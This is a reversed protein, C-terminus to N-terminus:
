RPQPCPQRSQGNTSCCCVPYQGDAELITYTPVENTDVMTNRRSSLSSYVPAATHAPLSCLTDRFLVQEDTPHYEALSLDVSVEKQEGSAGRVWSRSYAAPRVYPLVVNDVDSANREVEEVVTNSAHGNSSM